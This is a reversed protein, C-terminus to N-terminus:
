VKGQGARITLQTSYGAQHRKGSKKVRSAKAQEENTKRDKDIYEGKTLKPQRNLVWRPWRM